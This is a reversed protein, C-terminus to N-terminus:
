LNNKIEIDTIKAVANGTEWESPINEVTYYNGKEAEWIYNPKLPKKNDMSWSSVNVPTFDEETIIIDNSDKFYVTVKVKSLTKNGENKIKFKVAPVEKKWSHISLQLKLTM